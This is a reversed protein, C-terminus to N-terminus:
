NSKQRKRNIKEGKRDTKSKKYDDKELKWKSLLHEKEEYFNRM